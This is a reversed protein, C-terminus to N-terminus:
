LPGLPRSITKFHDLNTLFPRSISETPNESPINKEKTTTVVDEICSLLAELECVDRVTQPQGRQGDATPRGELWFVSRLLHTNIWVAVDARRRLVQRSGAFLSFALTPPM